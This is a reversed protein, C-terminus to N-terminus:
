WRQETGMALSGSTSDVIAVITLLNFDVMV